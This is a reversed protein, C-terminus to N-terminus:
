TTISLPKNTETVRWGLQVMGGQKSTELDCLCVYVCDTPSSQVLPSIIASAAVWVVSVFSSCGNGLRSEFGRDWCGLPRVGVGWVARNGSDTFIYKNRVSYPKRKKREKEKKREKKREKGREKEREKKREKEREKKREKRGEKKKTQKNTEKKREKEKKRKEKRKREEKREKKKRKEKKREKLFTM